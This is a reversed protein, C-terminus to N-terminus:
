VMGRCIGALMDRCGGCRAGSGVFGQTRCARLSLTYCRDDVADSAGTLVEDSGDVM